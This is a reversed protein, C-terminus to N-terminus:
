FYQISPWTLKLESEPLVDGVRNPTWLINIDFGPEENGGNDEEIMQAYRVQLKDLQRLYPPLAYLFRELHQPKLIKKRRLGEHQTMVSSDSESSYMNDGKNTAFSWGGNKLVPGISLLVFTIVMLSTVNPSVAPQKGDNEDDFKVREKVSISHFLEKMRKVKMTPERYQVMGGGVLCDGRRLLTVCLKEARSSLQENPGSELSKKISTLIGNLEISSLRYALQVEYVAASEFGLKGKILASLWPLAVFIGIIAVGKIAPLASAKSTSAGLVTIASVPYQLNSQRSNRHSFYTEDSERRQGLSSRPQSNGGFSPSTTGSRSGSGSSTRGSGSKSGGGNGNSKTSFSSGSFHSGSVARSAIPRSMSLLCIILAVTARASRRLGSFATALRSYWTRIINASHRSKYNKHTFLPQHYEHATPLLSSMRRSSIHCQGGIKQSKLVFSKSSRITLLLLCFAAFRGLDTSRMASFRSQFNLLLLVEVNQYKYLTSFLQTAVDDDFNSITSCCNLFKM